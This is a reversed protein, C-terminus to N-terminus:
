PVVVVPCEAQELLHQAVSAHLAGMRGRRRHGVVILEAGRTRGVAALAEAPPEETVVLEVEDDLADADEMWLAELTARAREERGPAAPIPLAGPERGVASVVVIPQDPRAHELAWRVAGLGELTGDYGVVVSATDTM